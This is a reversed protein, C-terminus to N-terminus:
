EVVGPPVLDDCADDLGMQLAQHLLDQARRRRWRGAPEPHAGEQAREKPFRELVDQLTQMEVGLLVQRVLADQQGILGEFDFAQRQGGPHNIGVARQLPAAELVDVAKLKDLLISAM